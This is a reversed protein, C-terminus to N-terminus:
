VLRVHVLLEGGGRLLSRGGSGEREQARAAQGRQSQQRRQRRPQRGQAPRPAGPRGGFPVRRDSKEVFTRTYPTPAVWFFHAAAGFTRNTFEKEGLLKPLKPTSSGLDGAPRLYPEVLTGGLTRRPNQSAGSSEKKKPPSPHPAPNLFLGFHVSHRWTTQPDITPYAELKAFCTSIRFIKTPKFSLGQLFTLKNNTGVLESCSISQPPGLQQQSSPERLHCFPSNQSPAPPWPNKKWHAEHAENLRRIPTKFPFRPTSIWLLGGMPEVDRQCTFRALLQSLGQSPKKQGRDFLRFM